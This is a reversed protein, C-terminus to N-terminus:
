LVVSTLVVMLMLRIWSESVSFENIVADCAYLWEM